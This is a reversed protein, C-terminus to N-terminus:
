LSLLKCNFVYNGQNSVINYEELKKIIKNIILKKSKSKPKSKKIYNDIHISLEDIHIYDKNDDSYVLKPIEIIIPSNNQLETIENIIWSLIM